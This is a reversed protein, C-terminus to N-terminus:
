DQFAGTDVDTDRFEEIEALLDEKTTPRRYYIFSFGDCTVTVRRSDKRSRDAKLGAIEDDSLPIVKVYGLGAGSTYGSSQQAFQLTEDGKLEAVKFYADKLNGYYDSNSNSRVVPAVDTNLKIWVRSPAEPGSYVGVFIAYWGKAGLKMRVPPADTEPSAWIMSGKQGGILEYPISKWHRKRMRPSLASAPEVATMDSLLTAQGANKWASALTGAWPPIEAAGASAASLLLGLPIVVSYFGAITSSARM